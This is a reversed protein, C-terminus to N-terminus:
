TSSAAGMSEHVLGSPPLPEGSLYLLEINALFLNLLFAFLLASEATRVRYGLLYLQNETDDMTFNAVECM